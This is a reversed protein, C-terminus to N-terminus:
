IITEWPVATYIPRRQLKGDIGITRLESIYGVAERYDVTYYSNTESIVRYEYEYREEIEGDECLMEYYCREWYKCSFCMPRCHWDPNNAVHKMLRIKSVLHNQGSSM